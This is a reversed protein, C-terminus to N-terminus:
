EPSMKQYFGLLYCKCSKAASEELFRGKNDTLECSQTPTPPTGEATDNEITPLLPSRAESTIRAKWISGNIVFLYCNMQNGTWVRSEDIREGNESIIFLLIGHLNWTVDVQIRQRSTNNSIEQFISQKCLPALVVEVWVGFWIPEWNSGGTKLYVNYFLKIFYYWLIYHSLAFLFPM